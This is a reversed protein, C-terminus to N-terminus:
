IPRGNDQIGCRRNLNRLATDVAVGDAAVYTHDTLTQMQHRRAAVYDRAAQAVDAPEATIEPEFAELAKGVPANQIRIYNDINPTSWNWDQPLAPISRLTQRTQTWAQCTGAGDSVTRDKLILAGAVLGAAIVIASGIIAAPLWSRRLPPRHVPAPLPPLPPQWQMSM